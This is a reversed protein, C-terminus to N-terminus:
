GVKFREVINKTAKSVIDVQDAGDTRVRYNDNVYKTGEEVSDVEAVWFTENDFTDWYFIGYAKDQAQLAASASMGTFKSM